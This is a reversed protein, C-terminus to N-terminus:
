FFPALSTQVVEISDVQARRVARDYHRRSDGLRILIPFAARITVTIASALMAAPAIWTAAAAVIPSPM